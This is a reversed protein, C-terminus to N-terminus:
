KWPRESDPLEYSDAVYAPGKMIVVVCCAIAVTFAAMWITAVTAMSIIDVTKLHKAIEVPTANPPFLRHALSIALPLLTGVLLAAPLRKLVLWELGPTSRRSNPLKHLFNM